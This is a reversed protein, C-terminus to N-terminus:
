LAGALRLVAIVVLWSAAGLALIWLMPRPRFSGPRTYTTSPTRNM